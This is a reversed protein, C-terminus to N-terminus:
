LSQVLMSRWYACCVMECVVTSCIHVTCTVCLAMHVEKENQACTTPLTCEVAVDDLHSCGRDGKEYICNRLGSEDGRCQLSRM